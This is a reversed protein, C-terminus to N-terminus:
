NGFISARRHVEEEAVRRSKIPLIVFALLLLKRSSVSSNLSCYYSTEGENDPIDCRNVSVCVYVCHARVCVCM